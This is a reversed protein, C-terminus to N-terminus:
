QGLQPVCFASVADNQRFQPEGRVGLGEADTVGGDTAGGTEDPVAEVLDMTAIIRPILESTKEQPGTVPMM